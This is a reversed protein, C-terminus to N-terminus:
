DPKSRSSDDSDDDDRDNRYDEKRDRRDGKEGRDGKDKKYRDRERNKQSQSKSKSNAGSPEKGYSEQKSGKLFRKNENKSSGNDKKSRDDYDPRRDIKRDEKTHPIFINRDDKSDRDPRNGPRYGNSSGPRRDDYDPRRHNDHRDQNIPRGGPLVVRKPPYERRHERNKLYPIGSLKLRVRPQDRIVWGSPLSTSRRWVGGITYYYYHDVPHYYVGYNPYYDWYVFSVQSHSPPYHDHPAVVCGSVISIFGLVLIISVNRKRIFM